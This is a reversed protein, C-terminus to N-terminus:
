EPPPRLTMRTSTESSPPLVHVSVVSLCWSFGVCYPLYQHQHKQSCSISRISTHASSPASSSHRPQSAAMFRWGSFIVHFTIPMIFLEYKRQLTCRTKSAAPAGASCNWCGVRAPGPLKPPQNSSDTIPLAGGEAHAINAATASRACERPQTNIVHTYLRKSVFLKLM